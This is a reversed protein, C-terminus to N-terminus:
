RVNYVTAMDKMKIKLSGDIDFSDEKIGANLLARRTDASPTLKEVGQMENFYVTLAYSCYKSFFNEVAKQYNNTTIDVMSQQAEVGQPTASMGHGSGAAMQQDAAGTLNIMAGQNQQSIQGYQLLTQTNVEFAELKANPNPVNVYKGP